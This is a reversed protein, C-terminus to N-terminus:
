RMDIGIFTACWLHKGAPCFENIHTAGIATDTCVCELLCNVAPAVYVM